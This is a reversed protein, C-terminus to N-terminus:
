FMPNTPHEPIEQVVDWHEIIKGDRLRVIDVVASGRSEPTLRMHCHTIVFDGDALVRKFDLRLEPFQGVFGSLFEASGAYGAPAHPNHQIYGPHLHTAIAEAPRRENFALDLFDQVTKKNAENM